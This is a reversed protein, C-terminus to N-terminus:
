VLEGEAKTDWVEFAFPPVPLRMSLRMRPAARPDAVAQVSEEPIDPTYEDMTQVLVFDITVM